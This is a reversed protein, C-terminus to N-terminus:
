YQGKYPDNVSFMSKIWSEYYARKKNGREGLYVNKGKDNVEWSDPVEVLPYLYNLVDNNNLAAEPTMEALYPAITKALQANWNIQIAEKNAKDQNTLKKKGEYIKDVQTKVSEHANWLDGGNVLAKIEALNVDNRNNWQNEMDMIAVPSSYKVVPEGYKNTTLYGFISLDSTGSIGMEAMTRIAGDHGDWYTNSALESSYLSGTQYSPIDGFNLLQVVAAFKNRDLSGQYKASLNKVLDMVSQQYEDIMDQRQSLIKKRQDPDKEQSLTSNLTQWEKSNTIAEKQVTLARVERKWIATTLDYSSMSFPKSVETTVNEGVSKLWGSGGEKALSVLDNLVNVGTTGIIGSVIKEALAPSMFSGFLKAFEQAFAGQDYSMTEASGTGYDWYTYSKDRLSKGSYPDTGTLLMYITKAPIPAMQSFVRASGRSVKDLITPDKVMADMDISSFGQLDIPSFGLIDNAMLEWFDNKNSDYLYETFQRFPAVIESLEQPIPLSVIQGNLVFVMSDQKQYEPINMYVERDSENGLSAGTLYITPLILGGMIRGSIGVPDLSWMRWFSKTGNIGARFYPTSDAIAQMHYLQRSFNTTANNMAFEAYVRSQELTYGSKMADNLSSAYVRNRLYNERKGNVLEDPSYKDVIGQLKDKINTLMGDKDKGYAEKMFTKYLTRETTTPSIAAGKMLERSVAAEELSQGTNKALQQLQKMEYGSPDFKKIQEVINEGFVDKLNDANTKITQWSGGVLLANGFDRFMQNGFSALNVSTTGFRFAKSMQANVKAVVSAEVKSMEFRYNFLSAFAPDVEAFVQRGEQDLYMVFNNDPSKSAISKEASTIRDNIEKAKKYIDGSDVLEPNIARASNAAVNTENDIIFETMNRAQTKIADVQKPYIKKDKVAKDVMEEVSNKVNKMERKSLTSLAVYKGVADEGDSVESLTKTAAKVGEDDLVTTLYKDIGNRVASELDDVLLNTNIGTINRLKGKADTKVFGDYFANKGNELNQAAQNMASSRAFEKDGILFARELGEEFDDGGAEMSKRFAEYGSVATRKNIDDAILSLARKQRRNMKRPDLYTKLPSVRDDFASYKQTLYKQESKNLTNWWENYNEPTVASTMTPHEPTLIKKETLIYKVDSPSLDSVAESRQKIGITKNKGPKSGTFDGAKTNAIDFKVDQTFNQASKSITTAMHKKTDNLQRAYQTEEGSIKVINTANSGFGSYAKFMQANVEAKALNTLRSQRVLEPDAYHQGAKVDFTLANMEQDIVADIRGTNEVWHGYKEHQVVIPMYGSEKWIPNNEYSTIKEKDLIGKAMGYENQSHYWGQYVKGAVGEDIFTTIEEPLVKKLRELDGQIIPLANQAKAANETAGEAFSKALREYYRGMMYDVMNQSLLSGEASPLNYKKALNSLDVYFNTAKINSGALSPNIFGEKGTSPDVVAGIMEQRKYSINRNYADIGNELAKVRSRLDNYEKLSDDTIKGDEWKFKVDGLAKRAERTLANWEEQAIQRKIRNAKIENKNEIAKELKKELKDIVSGGAIYDKIAQKKSGISAAIKNILPTVLTDIEKGLATKGAFKVLTKAAGMGAWWKGNDALQNLWYDRTAQDSSSLADRLTTSDYLLADHVTDSLFSTIVNASTIDRAGQIAMTTLLAAKKGADMMGVLFRAGTSIEPLANALTDAIEANGIVAQWTAFDALNGDSLRSAISSTVGVTGDLISGLVKAHAASGLLTGGLMGLTALTSTADNVLTGEENWTGMAKDLDKITNQVNYSNGLSFVTEAINASNLFVRDFGYLANFAFSEVNDGVSQWWEANPDHELIYEKFALLKAAETASANNYIENGDEDTYYDNESWNSGKLAGDIAAMIGAMESRGFNNRNYVKNFDEVSILGNEGLQLLKFPNGVSPNDGFYSVGLLANPMMIAKNSPISMAIQTDTMNKAKDGYKSIYKQKIEQADQHDQVFQKLSSNLTEVYEPITVDKEEVVQQGNEEKTTTVKLKFDKNLKYAQSYKKLQEEDFTQKFEPLSTISKPATIRINGTEKNISIEATPSALLTGNDKRYFTTQGEKTGEPLTGVKDIVEGKSNKVEYKPQSSTVDKWDKSINAM